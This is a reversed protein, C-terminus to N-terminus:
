CRCYLTGVEDLLVTWGWADPDLAPIPAFVLFRGSNLHSLSPWLLHLPSKLASLLYRCQLRCLANM